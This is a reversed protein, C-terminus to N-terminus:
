ASIAHATCERALRLAYEPNHVAPGSCGAVFETYTVANPRVSSAAMRDWCARMAGLDGARKYSSLLATWTILNHDAVGALKAFLAEAGAVDDSCARIASSATYSDPRVTAERMRKMIQKVELVSSCCGLASNFVHLTPRVRMSELVKVAEKVGHGTRALAVLEAAAWSATQHLGRQEAAQRLERVTELDGERAHGSMVTAYSLADPSNMQRLWISAQETLGGRVLVSLAANWTCVGTEYGKERLRELEGGLLTPLWKRPRRVHMSRHARVLLRAAARDDLRATVEGGTDGVSPPNRHRRLLSGARELRRLVAGSLRRVQLRTASVM